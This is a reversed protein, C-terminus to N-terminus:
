SADSSDTTIIKARAQTVARYSALGQEKELWNGYVKMVEYIGPRALAAELMEAYAQERKAPKTRATM